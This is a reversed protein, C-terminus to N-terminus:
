RGSLVREQKSFRRYCEGPCVASANQVNRNAVVPPLCQFSMAQVFEVWRVRLHISGCPKGGRCSSLYAIEIDAPNLTQADVLSTNCQELLASRKEGQPLALAADLLARSQAFEATAKLKNKLEPWNEPAVTGPAAFRDLYEIADHADVIAADNLHKQAEVDAVSVLLLPNEPLYTLSQRAYSLGVAYDELAFSARAAIEYAQFLFASQPFRLLFSKAQEMMQKPETNQFLALFAAREAPDSIQDAVTFARRNQSTVNADIDQGALPVLSFAVLVMVLLRRSMEACELEFCAKRAFADIVREDALFLELFDEGHLQRHLGLGM